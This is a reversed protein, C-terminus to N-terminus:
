GWATCDRLVSAYLKKHLKVARGSVSKRSDNRLRELQPQLWRKLEEDEEAWEVLTEMTTNLVIWDECTSLNHRLVRKAKELQEANMRGVLTSFLQALTWQASAQEIQSVEGLFKDLYAGLWEPHAWSVRKFASSTRLRVVEDPSSYCSYLEELRSVDALVLDVVEATRGLSNPHGGALMDTFPEVVPEPM